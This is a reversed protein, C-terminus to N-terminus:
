SAAPTLEFRVSPVCSRVVRARAAVPLRVPKLLRTNLTRIGGLACLVSMGLALLLGVRGVELGIYVFHQRSRPLEQGALVRDSRRKLAPRVAILRGIGLGIAM